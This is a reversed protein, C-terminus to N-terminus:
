SQSDFSFKINSWSGISVKNWAGWACSWSLNILWVISFESSLLIDQSSWICHRWCIGCSESLKSTYKRETKWTEAWFFIMFMIKVPALYKLHWCGMSVYLMFNTVEMGCTNECPLKEQRVSEHRSLNSVGDVSKATYFM